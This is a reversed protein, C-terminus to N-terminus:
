QPQRIRKRPGIVFTTSPILPFRALVASLEDHRVDAVADLDDSMSRYQRRHVWDAGVSFLRGLPKESSLVIRSRVKSKAQELEAATVGDAQAQRFVEYVKHLNEAIVEPDCSLFTTMVGAGEYEHHSMSAQEALGPDVIEWFLRSGSEDGLVTALLKAAYRDPDTATPGPSLQLAYQQAATAKHLVRFTHRPTAPTVERPAPQPEWHGCYRQASAMLADFDVCGAAVLTINAPSYRRLFYDRMAKVTLGQVSEMTGLVSRGLPHPGFYAARAKEEAGFPPQDEYMQIEELIVQKEKRFDGPRLAPRLIDGLLGVAQDQFEPLVAAYFITHEDGTFANHDAGMEDFQRNVDDATRTSTGKYVMHELFHSVGAVDDSEDRSGTRVFFGVATSRAEPQCEAVVALSNALTEQCFRM